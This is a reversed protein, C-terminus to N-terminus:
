RCNYDDKSKGIHMKKCKLPGFQLKKSLTKFKIYSHAMTTKHGCESICILDDLMALPPIDVEGKYKYVYKEEVLCEKGIEDVTKGCMMPGFVDGQMVANTIISRKTKGVPTKIAVKVKSNMNYLLAFKDDQIGGQYLDNMCEQIWLSDFCQRYDYIGIDVPTKKKTSLIDCIIGNLVWIHNRVNKRKRAGVQSDSMSFDLEEYSDLYILRMLLSRYVTVLFVGRDNQLNCKEGRGKYITAVDSMRVFDPIFNTEKMRNFFSLLSLKFDKGAVGDKFIENVLGNPDRAKEKKLGKIAKELNTLTWPKSKRKKSLQLRLEFLKMKMKRIEEFDPHIPRNRLRNIYTQLYLHKLGEHNTIINGKGDKKGVPVATSVKPYHKKLLKWMKRRRDGNEGNEDDSLERLTEIIERQYEETVENEM